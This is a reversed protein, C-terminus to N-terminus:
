TPFRATASLLVVFTPVHPADHSAFRVLNLVFARCRFQGICKKLLFKEISFPQTVILTSQPRNFYCPMWDGM